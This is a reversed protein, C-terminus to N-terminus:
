ASQFQGDHTVPQEAWFSKAGFSFHLSLRKSASSFATLKPQKQLLQHSPICNCLKISQYKKVTGPDTNKKRQSTKTQSFYQRGVGQDFSLFQELNLFILCTVWFLCRRTHNPYLLLEKLRPIIIIQFQSSRSLLWVTSGAQLFHIVHTLELSLLAQEVM